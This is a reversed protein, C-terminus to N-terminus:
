DRWCLHNGLIWPFPSGFLSILSFSLFSHLAVVDQSALFWIYHLLHSIRLPLINSISKLVSIASIWNKYEKSSLKETNGRQLRLGLIFATCLAKSFPIRSFDLFSLRLGHKRKQPTFLSSCNCFTLHPCLYVSLLHLFCTIPIFLSRPFKLKHFNEFYQLSPQGRQLCLHPIWLWYSFFFFSLSCAPM